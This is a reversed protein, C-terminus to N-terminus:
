FTVVVPAGRGDTTGDGIQGSENFGWCRVSGDDHLSCTHAGGAAIRTVGAIGPVAAPRPECLFDGMPVSCRMSPMFGLQGLYGAGWCRVTGDGLLACTHSSGAALQTVGSLGVDAPEPHSTVAGDGLQGLRGNGWCSVTGGGLVACTHGDGLAVDTVGSVADVLRPARACPLATRGPDDCSDGPEWAGVQGYQSVGWCHLQGGSTRACSHANGLAIQVVGPLSVTVPSPACSFQGGLCTATGAAGLQGFQAMGWCRIAGDAALACSHYGGSAVISVGALGAVAMPTAHADTTGLGLQGFAGDGWCRVSGAPDRACAHQNGPAIATSGALAAVVGPTTRSTTTGDALEGSTNGGWSRISGDTMRAFSFGLCRRTGDALMNCADYRGLALDAPTATCGGPTACACAGATCAFGAPCVNGCAGCNTGDTSPDVCAAGCAITPPACPGIPGDGTAGDVPIPAGDVAGLDLGPPVSGDLGAGDLAAGDPVSPGTDRGGGGSTGGSDCCAVLIALVGLWRANSEM